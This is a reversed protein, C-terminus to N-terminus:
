AAEAILEDVQPSEGELDLLRVAGLEAVPETPAAALSAAFYRTAAVSDTRDEAIEGLGALALAREPGAASRAASEAQLLRQRADEPTWRAPERRRGGSACGAILLAALIGRRM